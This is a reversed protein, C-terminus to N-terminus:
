KSMHVIRESNKMKMVAHIASAMNKVRPNNDTLSVNYIEDVFKQDDIIFLVRVILIRLEPNTEKKLQELLTESVEQVSYKGSFYIGSKRLGSNESKIATRLNGLANKDLRIIESDFGQASIETISVFSFIICSLVLKVIALRKGQFM